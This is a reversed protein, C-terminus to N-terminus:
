VGELLVVAMAAIGEKRGLFGLRETTTAKINVQNPSIKLLECLALKMPESYPLIKPREAIITVDINAVQFGEAVIKKMVETVFWRSDKDKYALDTDAFHTGIDGAAIAGLLSDCIAHLVVDGDSHAILAFDHKVDIGCLRIVAREPPSDAFRHVDFGQGIRIRQLIKEENKM